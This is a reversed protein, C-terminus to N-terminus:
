IIIEKYIQAIKKNNDLCKKGFFVINPVEFYSLEYCFTNIIKSKM